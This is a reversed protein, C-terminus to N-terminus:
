KATQTKNMKEKAKFKKTFVFFEDEEVERKKKTNIDTEPTYCNRRIVYKFVSVVSPSRFSKSKKFFNCKLFKNLFCNYFTRFINM